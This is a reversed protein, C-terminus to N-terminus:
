DKRQSLRETLYKEADGEFVIRQGGSLELRDKLLGRVKLALELYTKRTPLDIYDKEDCIGGKFKAIETKMANIGDDLVKMLRVETLGMKDMLETIPMSLKVLNECGIVTASQDTCDYAQRAAETANGTEIYVKLWKRQKLTLDAELDGSEVPPDKEPKKELKKPNNSHPPNSNAPNPFLKYVM